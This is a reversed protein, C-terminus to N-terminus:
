SWGWFLFLLSVLSVSFVSLCAILLVWASWNIPQDELDTIRLVPGRKVVLISHDGDESSFVMGNRDEIEEPDFTIIVKGVKEDTSM